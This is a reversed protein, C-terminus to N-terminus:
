PRQEPPWIRSAITSAPFSGVPEGAAATSMGCLARLAARDESSFASYPDWSVSTGNRSQSRARRMGPPPSEAAVGCLIAVAEERADGALSDLDPAITRAVALVRRATMMDVGSIDNATIAM